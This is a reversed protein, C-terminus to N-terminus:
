GYIDTRLLVHEDINDKKSEVGPSNSQTIKILSKLENKSYSLSVTGAVATSIM